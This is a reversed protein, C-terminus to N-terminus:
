QQKPVLEQSQVGGNPTTQYVGYCIIFFLHIATQFCTFIFIFFKVRRSLHAESFYKIYWPLMEGQTYTGGVTLSHNQIQM